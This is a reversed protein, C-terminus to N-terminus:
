QVIVTGRMGMAVHYICNYTYTGKTTFTFTSSGGAPVKGSDWVGTDSTSTHAIGDNNKWTITTGAAITITAPNFAMGSMLVTNPPVVPTTPSTMPTGYPNSSNSSCDLGAVSVAILAILLLSSYVRANRM